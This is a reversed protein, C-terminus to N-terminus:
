LGVVWNYMRAERFLGIRRGDILFDMCLTVTALFYVYFQECFQGWSIKM